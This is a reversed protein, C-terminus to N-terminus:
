TDTATSVPINPLFRYRADDNSASKRDRHVDEISNLHLSTLAHRFVVSVYTSHSLQLILFIATFLSSFISSLFKLSEKKMYIKLLRIRTFFKSM